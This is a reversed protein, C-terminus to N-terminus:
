LHHVFGRCVVSVRFEFDQKNRNENLEYQQNSVKERLEEERNMVEQKERELASEREQLTQHHRDEMSDVEAEVAHLERRLSEVQPKLDENLTVNISNIKQRLSGNSDTLQSIESTCTAISSKLRSTNLCTLIM